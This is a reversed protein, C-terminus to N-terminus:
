EAGHPTGELDEHTPTEIGVLRLIMTTLAEDLDDGAAQDAPASRGFRAILGIIADAVVPAAAPLQVMGDTDLRHLWRTVRRLPRQQIETWLDAIGPDSIAQHEIVTLLESHTTYASLFATVSAHTVAHLDSEDVDNLEHAALFEDRVRTAVETFVGAKSSFYAYFTPRAVQAEATIDAVTTQAYGLRAFVLAASDLLQTRTEHDGEARLDRASSAPASTPRSM